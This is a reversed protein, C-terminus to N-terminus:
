SVSPSMLAISRAIKPAGSNRADSARRAQIIVRVADSPRQDIVRRLADDVPAGRRVDASLTISPGGVALQSLGALLLAGLIRRLSRTV